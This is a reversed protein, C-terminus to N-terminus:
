EWKRYLGLARFQETYEAYANDHIYHSVRTGLRMGWLEQPWDPSGHPVVFGSRVFVQSGEAVKFVKRYTEIALLFKRAREKLSGYRQALGLKMLEARCEQYYDSAFFFTVVSGLKMGWLEQPWEPSDEPVVYAQPVVVPSGEPINHVARYTRIAAVFQQAITEMKPSLGLASFENEFKSFRGCHLIQSAASGLKMGWLAQPWESSDHPVVFAAPIVAPSGEPINHVARYTRIGEITRQSSVENRAGLGLASIERKFESFDGRQVIHHATSGLKKGWLEQPWEPSHQPVVFDSPIVVPRGEPIKHLARYTKIAKIAQLALTEKRASLGLANFEQTSEMFAGNHLISIATQGLRMGWLEQPWDPSDQPVIYRNPIVLPNGAAIKHVTRFTKIAKIARQAALENQASLGLASFEEKYERFAGNHLINTSAHGLKKGWLEQPWDSSDHPVVFNRPIVVPRGEPINHVARYTKIAEIAKRASTERADSIALGGFEKDFKSLDGRHLVNQVARGLRMGWLKQPWAASDRPVIFSKPIVVPGGVPINLVARYVNLAEVVQHTSTEARPALELSHSDKHDRFTVMDKRSGGLNFSKRTHKPTTGGGTSPAAAFRISSSSLASARRCTLLVSLVRYKYSLGLMADSRYAV